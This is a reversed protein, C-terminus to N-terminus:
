FVCSSLLADPHESIKCSEELKISPEPLWVDPIVTWRENSLRQPVPVSQVIGDIEVQQDVFEM